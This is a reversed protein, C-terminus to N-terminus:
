FNQNEPKMGAKLPPEQQSNSDKEHYDMWTNSDLAIPVIILHSIEQIYLYFSVVIRLVM